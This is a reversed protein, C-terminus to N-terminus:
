KSGKQEPQDKKVYPGIYRVAVYGDGALSETRIGRARASNSIASRVTRHTQGPLLDIRVVGSEVVQELLEVMRPNYSYNPNPQKYRLAEFDDPDLPRFDGIKVPM